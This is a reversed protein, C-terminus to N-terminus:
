LIADLYGDADRLQGRLHSMEVKIVPINKDIAMGEEADQMHSPKDVLIQIVRGGTEKARVMMRRFNKLWIGNAEKENGYMIFANDTNPNFVM